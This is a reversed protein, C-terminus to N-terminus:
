GRWLRPAPRGGARPVPRPPRAPRQLSRRRRPEPDRHRDPPLRQGLPRARHHPPWGRSRRAQRLRLAPYPRSSHARGRGPRPRRGARGGRTTQHELELKGPREGPWRGALASCGLPRLTRRTLGGWERRVVLPPWCCTSEWCGGAPPGPTFFHGFRLNAGWQVIAQATELLSGCCAALVRSVPPLLPSLALLGRRAWIGAFDHAGAAPELVPQGARVLQFRSAVLPATVLGVIFSVALGELVFWGLRRARLLWWPELRRELQDLPDHPDDFSWLLFGPGRRPVPRPAHRSTWHLAPGRGLVAPWPWSRSSAAWM